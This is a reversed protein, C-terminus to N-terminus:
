RTVSNSRLSWNELYEWFQSNKAGKFFKQGSLIYSSAESTILSKPSKWVSHSHILASYLECILSFTHGETTVIYPQQFKASYSDLVKLFPHLKVLGLILAHTALLRIQLQLHWCVLAGHQHQSTGSKAIIWAVKSIHGVM